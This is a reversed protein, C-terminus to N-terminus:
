GGNLIRGRRQGNYIRSVASISYGTIKAVQSHSLGSKKLEIIKMCIYERIMKRQAKDSKVEIVKFRKGQKVFDQMNSLHTDYRLNELRNYKGDGNNHCIETGSPRDGIFALMVLCHINISYTINNRSLSVFLYESNRKRKAPKLLRPVLALKYKGRIKYSRVRGISSVEYGEFGLIPKWIEDNM